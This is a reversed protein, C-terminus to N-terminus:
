RTASSEVLIPKTTQPRELAELQAKLARIEKRQELIRHTQSDIREYLGDVQGQLFRVRARAIGLRRGVRNYLSHYDYRQNVLILNKRFLRKLLRFM